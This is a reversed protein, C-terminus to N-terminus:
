VRCSYFKNGDADYYETSEYSFRELRTGDCNNNCREIYYKNPSSYDSGDDYWDHNGGEESGSCNDPQCNKFEYGKNNLFESRRFGCKDCSENRVVQQEYEDESYFSWDHQGGKECNDADPATM